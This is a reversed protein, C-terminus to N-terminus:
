ADYYKLIAVISMNMRTNIEDPIAGDAHAYGLSVMYPSNNPLADADTGFKMIKGKLPVSVTFDRTPCTPGNGLVGQTATTSLITLAPRFQMKKRKAISIRETNIPYLGRVTSGNYPYTTGGPGQLWQNFPQNLSINYNDIATNACSFRKDRWLFWDALITADPQPTTLASGTMSVTDSNSSYFSVRCKLTLSKVQIKNGLRNSEGTGQTITPFVDFCDSATTIGSNFGQCNLEKIQTKVEPKARRVAVRRLRALRINGGSRYSKGTTRGSKRSPRHQLRKVNSYRKAM